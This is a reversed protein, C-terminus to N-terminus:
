IFQIHVVRNENVLLMEKFNDRGFKTEAYNIKERFKKANLIANTWM